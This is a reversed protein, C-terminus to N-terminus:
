RNQVGEAEAEAELIAKEEEGQIFTEGKYFLSYFVFVVSVALMVITFFWYYSAGELKVSGDDNQIFYNVGSVFFNGFSVGLFYIGMVFSKMKKPAQTYAFELSTISVMVEAATILVYALLQWSIHPTAGGDIWEQILSSLAFAGATTFMGIGIKRLPTLRYVRNIAPYVAFAFVPILVLILFPNAAQIQSPLMEWGFMNRDMRDAQLVWASGTQDFLAWFAPIFILFLPTLNVLARVGDKSVAEKVFETGGPPVHVFTNRGIFFLLTAIGMLVGPLGFAAWPGVHELLLPTIVMSLVSGTNIAFYWIQYMVPLMHKNGRGFQDGLHASVCPKIGGSGIAIFILGAFLWYRPEMLGWGLGTDGMALCAHGVCYGLSLYLITGYKGFFVDALISGLIPFFYAGATFLHYIAKANEETMTDLAGTSDVLYKTMFITLIGKMGYFSFREAFENGLIYPIGRPVRSTNPPSTLHNGM